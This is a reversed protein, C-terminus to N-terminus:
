VGFAAKLAIRAKGAQEDGMANLPNSNRPVHRWFFSCGNKGFWDIAAWLALNANRGYQGTGCRVTLESDSVIVVRVPLRPKGAYFDWLAHIYPWLEALNNTGTTGAGCHRAVAGSRKDYVICSWGFPNAATTGSGDGFIYLDAPQLALSNIVAEVEEATPRM